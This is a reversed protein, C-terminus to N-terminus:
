IAKLAGLFSTFPLQELGKYALRRRDQHDRAHPEGAAPDSRYQGAEGEPEEHTVRSFARPLEFVTRTVPFVM